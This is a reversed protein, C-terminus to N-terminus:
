KGPAALLGMAKLWDACLQPWHSVPNESARLGYGHGGKTFVHLEAPVGAKNLEVYFLAANAGRQVPDTTDSHFL